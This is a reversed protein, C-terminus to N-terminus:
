KLKDLSVKPTGKKFLNTKIHLFARGWLNDYPERSVV